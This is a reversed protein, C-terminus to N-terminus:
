NYINKGNQPGTSFWLGPSTSDQIKFRYEVDGEDESWFLKLETESGAYTLYISPCTAVETREGHYLKENTRHQLIEIVHWM